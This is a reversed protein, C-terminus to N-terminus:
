HAKIKEEWWGFAIIATFSVAVAGPSTLFLVLNGGPPFILKGDEESVLTGGPPVIRDFVNIGGVPVGNVNQNFQLQVKPIPPPVLATNAPSIKTSQTGTGPPDTNFWLQALFPRDTFNSITYVNAFLNVGSGIPNVLSGWANATNSLILSETQGVFYKGQLSKFLPNPINVVEDLRKPMLISELFNPM